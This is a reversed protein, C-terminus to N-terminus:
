FFCFFNLRRHKTLEQRRVLMARMRSFEFLKTELVFNPFVAIFRLWSKYRTTLNIFFVTLRSLLDNASDQIQPLEEASRSGGQLYTPTTRRQQPLAQQLLAQQLFAQQLLIKTNKSKKYSRLKATKDMPITLNM